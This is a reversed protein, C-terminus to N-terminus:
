KEDPLKARTMGTIAEVAEDADKISPTHHGFYRSGLRLVRRETGEKGISVMEIFEKGPKFSMKTITYLAIGNIKSRDTILGISCGIVIPVFSANHSLFVIHPLKTRARILPNISTDEDYIKNINQRIKELKENDNSM